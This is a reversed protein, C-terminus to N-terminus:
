KLHLQLTALATTKGACPGGTVCIRTIPIKTNHRAEHDNSERVMPDEIISTKSAISLSDESEKYNEKRDMQIKARASAQHAMKLANKTDNYDSNNHGPNIADKLPRNPQSPSRDGGYESGAQSVSSLFRTEEQVMIQRSVRERRKKEREMKAKELLAHNYAEQEKKRQMLSEM